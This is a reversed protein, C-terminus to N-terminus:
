KQMLAPRGLGYRRAETEVRDLAEEIQDLQGQLQEVPNKGLHPRKVGGGGGATGRRAPGQLAGKGKSPAPTSSEEDDSEPAVQGKTAADKAEDLKRELDDQLKRLGQYTSKLQAIKADRQDDSMLSPDDPVAPADSMRPGEGDPHHAAAEDTAAGDAPGADQSRASWSFLVLAIALLSKRM